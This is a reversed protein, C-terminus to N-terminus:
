AYRDPRLLWFAHCYLISWSLVTGYTRHKPQVLSLMWAITGSLELSRRVTSQSVACVNHCLGWRSSRRLSSRLWTRLPPAARQARSSSPGAPRATWCSRLTCRVRSRCGCPDIALHQLEHHSTLKMHTISAHMCALLCARMLDCACAM